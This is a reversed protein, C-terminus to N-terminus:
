PSVYHCFSPSFPSWLDQNWPAVEELSELGFPTPIIYPRAMFLPRGVLLGTRSLSISFTLHQNCLRGNQSSQLAYYSTSSGMIVGLSQMTTPLSGFLIVKLFLTASVKWMKLTFIWIKYIQRENKASFNLHMCLLHALFESQTELNSHSM